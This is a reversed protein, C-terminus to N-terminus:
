HINVCKNLFDIGKETLKYSRARKDSQCKHLSLYGTSIGEKLHRALYVDSKNICVKLTKFRVREGFINDRTYICLLLNLTDFTKVYDSESFLQSAKEFSLSLNKIDKEQLDM